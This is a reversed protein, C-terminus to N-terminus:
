SLTKVSEQLRKSCQGITWLFCVSNVRENEINMVGWRNNWFYEILFHNTLFKLKYIKKPWFLQLKKIHKPSTKCQQFWWNKYKSRRNQRNEVLGLGAWGLGALGAWGWVALWGVWKPVGCHVWVSGLGVGFMNVTFWEQPGCCVHIGM